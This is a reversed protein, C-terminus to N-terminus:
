PVWLWHAFFVCGTATSAASAEVTYSCQALVLIFTSPIVALLLTLAVSWTLLKSDDHLLRNYVRRCEVITLYLNNSWVTDLDLLLGILLSPAVGPRALDFSRAPLDVARAWCFIFINGYVPRKIQNIKVTFRRQRGTNQPRCSSFPRWSKQRFFHMRTVQISFKRVEFHGPKKVASAGGSYTLLVQTPRCKHTNVNSIHLNLGVGSTNSYNM